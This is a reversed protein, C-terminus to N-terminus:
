KLFSQYQVRSTHKNFQSWLSLLEKRNGLALCAKEITRIM